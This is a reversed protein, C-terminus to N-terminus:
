GFLGGRVGQSLDYESEWKRMFLQQTSKRLVETGVSKVDGYRNVHDLTHCIASHRGYDGVGGDLVIGMCNMCTSWDQDPQM